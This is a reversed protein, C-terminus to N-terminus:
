IIGAESEDVADDINRNHEKSCDTCKYCMM